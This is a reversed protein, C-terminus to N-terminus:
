KRARICFENVAGVDISISGAQPLVQDIIKLGLEITADQQEIVYKFGDGLTRIKEKAKNLDRQLKAIMLRDTVDAGQGRLVAVTHLHKQALEKPWMGHREGCVHCNYTAPGSNREGSAGLTECFLCIYQM